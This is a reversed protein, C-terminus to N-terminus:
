SGPKPFYKRPDVPPKPKGEGEGTTEGTAKAAEAAAKVKAEEAAQKAAEMAEAEGAVNAAEPDAVAIAVDSVTVQAPDTLKIQPLDKYLGIVGTVSLYKDKYIDAPEGESFPGLDSKFTVL